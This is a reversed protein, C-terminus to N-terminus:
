QYVRNKGARLRRQIGGIGDGVDIDYRCGSGCRDSRDLLVAICAAFLVSELPDLEELLRSAGCMEADDFGPGVAFVKIGMRDAFALSEGPTRQL